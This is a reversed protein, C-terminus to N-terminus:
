TLCVHLNTSDILLLYTELCVPFNFSFYWQIIINFIKKSCSKMMLKEPPHLFNGTNNQIPL